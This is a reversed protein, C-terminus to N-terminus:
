PKVDNIMIQIIDKIRKSEDMISMMGLRSKQNRLGGVKEVTWLLNDISKLLASKSFSIGHQNGVLIRNKMIYM